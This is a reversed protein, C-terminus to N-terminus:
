KNIKKYILNSYISKWFTQFTGNKKLSANFVYTICPHKFRYKSLFIPSIDELDRINKYDLYDFENFIELLEFYINNLSDNCEVIKSTFVKSQSLWKMIYQLSIIVSYNLLKKVMKLLRQYLNLYFM